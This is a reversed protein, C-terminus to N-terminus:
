SLAALRRGVAAAADASSPFRAAQVLAAGRLEARLAPDSLVRSLAARLAQPSREPVILAASPDLWDRIADAGTTVTPLGRAIAEAVAMGYGEHLSASVYVDASRWRADLDAQPLGGELRVRGELGAGRIMESLRAVYDPAREHDGVISLTWPLHALGALAAVLDHYGKRPIVAGVSLLLPVNARPPEHAAFRAIGPPAVVIRDAAVGYDATLTSATTHSSAIVLRCAALAAREVAMFHASEDPPLGEEMAIPHHFIMVLRLREAERAVIDALPSLCIQDSVVISGDPLAALLAASRARAAADPRPFGAPLDLRVIESGTAALEQMLRTNYVYGGTHRAYDLSSAFVLHRQSM